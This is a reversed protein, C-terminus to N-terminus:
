AADGKRLAEIFRDPRIPIQRFRIGTADHIANAISAAVPLTAIEGLGIGGGPVHEFGAEDFHIDIEPIDAIGPIRYDELGTTLVAGTAQDLERNEYLAYGIGQIISGAVQNRALAPHQVQGVSLGAAYRTVRCHGLLTDVEVEAAYVAASSGQGTNLDMFRRLIWDFTKGIMGAEQLPSRGRYAASLKDAPRRGRVVIDDAAAILDRWPANGGPKGHAKRRLTAKMEDAAALLAPVLSATTRSGGSIPGHALSSVGIVVEIEAQDLDFAEAATRALVSRIGTGIDQVSTSVRLRGRGVQLEVESGQEWWYLWNAAAVGVGRRFRGGRAPAATRAQWLPHGIMWGYLRQRSPHGDWRQRLAIPDLGLTQAAEDVAQELAFCLLPGGPGRFPTGPPLHSVIDYDILEKADTDYIMRAFGAIASNVAVGADAYAKVSMAQLDGQEGCLLAVQLEAGPRYGTVAMEEHRDLAVRVPAGSARALEVAAVTEGTLGLKAGFGGGVHEAIVRVKDEPLGFRKAIAKALHRVAQTSLHVTLGGVDDWRATAAHPEFATHSQAGTLFTGEVLLPNRRARAEALLKKAKGGNASFAWTPGRSNGKWPTPFIPGEGSNAAPKRWGPYVQPADPKRAADLGIVAPLPEYQVLIAALGARASTRDVAAVAAIEQGRYRVPAGEAIMPIAAKVGPVGLAVALDLSKVTAHAHPSRLLLAELQGDHAIDVTYKARGTVKDAAEARPGAPAAIEFEGACAAAVAKYINEYAGCRCLHGSLAAGIEARDPAADQRRSRWRDYFAVAEVVFGPTCFGCQMADHAIFAKQVPHLGGEAIAEVTVVSRGAAASAPLLCSTVTQGDLLVTCAGCVGAGCVQKTGTLAATSRIVDILLLDPDTDAVQCDKGNLRFAFV